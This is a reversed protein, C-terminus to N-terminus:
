GEAARLGTSIEERAPAKIGRTLLWFGVVPEAIGIPLAGIGILADSPQPLLLNTVFAAFCLLSGVLGWMALLRPIYGSRRFLFFFLTSGVSFFVVSVDTGVASTRSILDALTASQSPALSNHAADLYVQLTAYGLVLVVVTIVSEAVRFLLATLALHPQVPKLIAYLAVALLITSMTGVLGCLLGIRYLMESAAVSRATALFDGGGTLMSQILVGTVDFVTFFYM